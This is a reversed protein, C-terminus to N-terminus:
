SFSETAGGKREFVPGRFGKKPLDILSALFSFFPLSVGIISRVPRTFSYSFFAPLLFGSPLPSLSFSCSPSAGLRPSPSPPGTIPIPKPCFM